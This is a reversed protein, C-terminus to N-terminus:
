CRERGAASGGLRNEGRWLKEVAVKRSPAIERVTVRDDKPALSAIRDRCDRGFFEASRFMVLGNFPRFVSGCCGGAIPRRKRAISPRIAAITPSSCAILGRFLRCLAADLPTEVRM